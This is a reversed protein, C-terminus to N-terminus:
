PLLIRPLALERALRELDALAGAELAELEGRLAALRAGLATAEERVGQTPAGDGFQLAWQYLFVLNSHLQTGGPQSLIDYVVEARPNHLRAELADCGEALRRAAAVLGAAREDDALRAELDRAQERMARVREVDSVVRDITDRLELAMELQAAYESAPLDLRPDPRIEFETEAAREGAVLRARYRGPIARPGVTPDGLDVKAGELRRAGKWELDWVARHLGAGTELAPKPEPTPEDPDDEPYAAPEAVSSLERVLRGAEDRIELELEGGAPERLWYHLVVGDPPNPAAGAESWSGGRNWRTAPRPAFLHLDATALEDRWQRIASLDDLIWIGRGSTGVVLDGRRVVLDVVRAAPLNARLRQWSEGADPSLWLGLETGAYLLGAREPDERVVLLPEDEPLGAVPSTWSEGGDTTVFLYPRPDGLRHADVVVRVTAPDHPSVEISEVTGWEPMAPPTVESWVGGGDRTVHVLGDDTGAWITRGDHPSIALSFITGYIEVGTNDGTIPGGSGKQKSKDNRTLDPSIAQWSRGRDRSRFLVEAAHYLEAPDHPSVAIPATWQFRHKLDEAGHGSPNTPYAQINRTHGTKQDHVTLIGGYEGAYAVGSEHADWVFDGAEGGGADTWDGLTIGERRLSDSPAAGTGQDQMTGGVHYPVRHDADVNYFQAISLEPAYWTRGGDWSLDVGGDTSVIMRRPDTPDIWLDHHDGHHTGDVHAFTRGGDLSRLLPVQPVWVTDPDRPDVTLVTYYWARQRLARHASVREWNEGGDDSRFLGGQEAEILAYVRRGDSPAVAVGVKGWIGEPLGHGTLQRWTTGGDASRYLGSGPGGSVLEWPRRVAQWLGAFLIRPNSPDFAVDSAGTQEDRFLVRDWTGGGDLTRYVGREPSAAFANGLVAAFAVDPDEPHVIMTGIQATAKWVHSWTKGADTTKWIGRGSIVNGRINAEGSGVYVVNPDSPAVAISGISAVPQEDFVPKWVTGGNESKWVGGQSTAAWWTLPDGAVGCARSVRGGNAPGISRLKLGDFRGAAQEAWAGPAALAAGLVVATWRARM